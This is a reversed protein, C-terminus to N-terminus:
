GTEWCGQWYAKAALTNSVRMVLEIPDAPKALFETVGLELARARSESDTAATLVITPTDKLINRAEMDKLIDFGSRGPMMLDLLLVDPKRELILEIAAAPDSTTVFRTFGAEELHLRTVEIAIPEDDVLMVLASLVKDLARGQGRPNAPAKSRGRAQGLLWAKWGTFSVPGGEPQAASVAASLTNRSM